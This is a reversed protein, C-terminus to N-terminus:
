TARARVRAVVAGALSAAAVGAAVGVLLGAAEGLVLAACRLAAVSALALGTGAAGELRVRLSTVSSPLSIGAALGVLVGAAVCMWPQACCAGEGMTM